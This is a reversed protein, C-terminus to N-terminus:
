SKRSWYSLRQMLRHYFYDPGDVRAFVSMCDHKRIIVEDGNELNVADQGDATAVAEHEVEVAITIVADQHLILPREFSLHPAVPIVLFNQLEPPLLPGGAAMSYATSGTPTATILADATYATVHYDDVYLHFRVVRVMSGRSVVVDNLATLSALEEGRRVVQASLMLRQELWHDGQRVRDLRSSWNGPRAESLFGVRGLNIGFVPIAFPAALRAARLMTGDGGLVIILDFHAVHQKIVELDDISSVWAGDPQQESWWRGVEEALPAAHEVMPNYLIGARKM